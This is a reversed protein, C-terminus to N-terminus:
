HERVCRRKNSGAYPFESADAQHSLVHKATGPGFQADIWGMLVVERWSPPSDMHETVTSVDDFVDPGITVEQPLPDSWPGKEVTAYSDPVISDPNPPTLIPECLLDLLGRDITSQSRQAEEEDSTESM